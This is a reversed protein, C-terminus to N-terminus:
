MAQLGLVEETVNFDSDVGRVFVALQPVDTVDTSENIALSFTEFKLCRKLLSSEIDAALEEIRRIM